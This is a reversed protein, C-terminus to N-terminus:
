YVLMRGDPYNGDWGCPLRGRLYWSTILPAFLLSNPNPYLLELVMRFAKGRFGRALFEVLEALDGANDPATLGWARALRGSAEAVRANCAAHVRERHPGITGVYTEYPVGAADVALNVCTTSERGRADLFGQWADACARELADGLTGGLALGERPDVGPEGAHSLFFGPTELAEYLDDLSVPPRHDTM